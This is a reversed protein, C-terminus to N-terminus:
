HNNLISYLHVDEETNGYKIIGQSNFGLKLLLKQSATNHLSTFALLKPLNLQTFAHYVIAKSAEYTYGKRSYAPLIAFGLDLDELFDRKILGCLGIAENTSSHTMKYLGFGNKQYSQVLRTKIYNIADEDTKVTSNGIFELWGPTNLLELIFASDRLDAEEIIIRATELIKM